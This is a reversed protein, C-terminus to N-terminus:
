TTLVLVYFYWTYYVEISKSCVKINPWLNSTHVLHLLSVPIYSYYEHQHSQMQLCDSSTKKLIALLILLSLM